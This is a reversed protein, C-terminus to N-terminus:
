VASPAPLTPGPPLSDWHLGHIRGLHASEKRRHEEKGARGEVARGSGGAIVHSRVPRRPVAHGIVRRRDVLGNVGRARGPSSRDLECGAGVQGAGDAQPALDSEVEPGPRRYDGGRIPGGVVARLGIGPPVLQVVLVSAVAVPVVAEDPALVELVDGNRARSADEAPAEGPAEAPLDGRLRDAVLRDRELVAAVHDQAVERDLVAAPEPDQGGADVVEDDVRERDVGVAVPHVDVAAVVHPYGVARHIGWPVVADAELAGEPEPLKAGGLVHGDRVAEHAAVVLTREEVPSAPVVRGAVRLGRAADLEPGLRVAAEPRYGDRVAYEFAAAAQRKLGDVARLDLVHRDRIDRHPPYEARGNEQADARPHAPRIAGRDSVQPPDYYAVHDGLAHRSALRDEHNAKRAM